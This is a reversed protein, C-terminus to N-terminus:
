SQLVVVTGKLSLSVKLESNLSFYGCKFLQGSGREYIADFRRHLQIIMSLCVCVSVCIICMQGSHGGLIQWDINIKLGISM